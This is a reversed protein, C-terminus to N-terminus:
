SRGAAPTHSAKPTAPPNSQSERNRPGSPSNAAVPHPSCDLVANWCHNNHGQTTSSNARSSSSSDPQTWRAHVPHPASSARSCAPSLRCRCGGAATPGSPHTHRAQRGAAPQQATHQHTPSYATNRCVGVCSLTLKELPIWHFLQQPVQPTLPPPMLAHSRATPQEATCHAQPLTNCDTLGM